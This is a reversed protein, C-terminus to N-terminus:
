IQEDEIGRIIRAYYQNIADQIADKITDTFENGMYEWKETDDESFGTEEETMIVTKKLVEEPVQHRSIRDTHFNVTKREKNKSEKSKEDRLAGEFNRGEELLVEKPIGDKLNGELPNGDTLIGEKDPQKLDSEKELLEQASPIVEIDEMNDISEIRVVEDEEQIKLSNEEKLLSCLELYLKYYYHEVKKIDQESSKITIYKLEEYSLLHEETHANMVYSSLFLPIFAKYLETKMVFEIAKDLNSPNVGYDLSDLIDHFAEVSVGYTESNIAERDNKRVNLLYNRVDELIAYLERKNIVAGNEKGKLAEMYPELRVNFNSYNLSRLITVGEIFKETDIVIIYFFNDGLTILDSKLNLLVRNARINDMFNFGTQFLSDEKLFLCINTFMNDDDLFTENIFNAVNTLTVMNKSEKFLTNKVMRCFDDRVNASNEASKTFESLYLPSNNLLERSKELFDYGELYNSVLWTIDKEITKLYSCRIRFAIGVQELCDQDILYINSYAIYILKTITLLWQKDQLYWEMLQARTIEKEIEAKLSFCHLYSYMFNPEFIDAYARLVNNQMLEEYHYFFYGSAKDWGESVLVAGNFLYRNMFNTIEKYGHLQKGKPNLQGDLKKNLILLLNETLFLLAYLSLNQQIQSNLKGKNALETYLEHFRKNLYSFNLYLKWQNYEYMFLNSVLPQIEGIPIDISNNAHLTSYLFHKIQHFVNSHLLALNGTKFYDETDHILNLILEELIFYGNSLQRSTDGFFALYFSIFNHKYYLFNDRNNLDDHGIFRNLLQNMEIELDNDKNIFQRKKKYDQFKDLYYSNAPPLVKNLYLAAINDSGEQTVAQEMEQYEYYHLVEWNERNINGRGIKKNLNNELVELFMEEDATIIVILNPHSLYKTILSLLQEAKDPSLDVDDFIFYLLPLQKAEVQTSIDNGEMVAGVFTTWFRTINKAFAYSNKTQQASNGIADYFSTEGMPNYSQSFCLECLSNYQKRLPNNTNFRCNDFFSSEPRINRKAKIKEEIKIISEELLAMIWGLLNGNDPIMEPMIIPFVVDCCHEMSNEIMHKLTFIASTKGTGRKGFISFVNDYMLNYQYREGLDTWVKSTFIENRHNELREFLNEYTPFVNALQKQTLIKIGMKYKPVYRFEQNMNELGGM